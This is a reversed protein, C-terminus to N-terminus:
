VRRIHGPFYRIVYNRVDAHRVLRWHGNRLQVRVPDEPFSKKPPPKPTLRRQRRKEERIRNREWREQNKIQELELRKRTGERRLRRAHNKKKKAPTAPLQLPARCSDDLKEAEKWFKEPIAEPEEPEPEPILPPGALPWDRDKEPSPSVTEKLEPVLDPPTDRVRTRLDLRGAYITDESLFPNVFDPDEDMYKAIKAYDISGDEFSCEKKIEEATNKKKPPPPPPPEEPEDYTFRIGDFRAVWEGRFEFKEQEQDDEGLIITWDLKKTKQFHKIFKGQTSDPDLNSRIYIGNESRPLTGSDLEEQIRTDWALEL